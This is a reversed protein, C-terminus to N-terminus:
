NIYEIYRSRKGIRGILVMSPFLEVTKDMVDHATVWIRTKPAKLNDPLDNLLFLQVEKSTLYKRKKRPAMSMLKELLARARLESVNGAIIHVEKEKIRKSVDAGHIVLAYEHNKMSGKTLFEAQSLEKMHKEQCDKSCYVDVTKGYKLYHHTKLERKQDRTVWILNSCEPNSCSMLTTISNM